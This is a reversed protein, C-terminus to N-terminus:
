SIQQLYMQYRSYKFWSMPIYLYWLWNSRRSHVSVLISPYTLHSRGGWCYEQNIYLPRFFFNDWTWKTSALLRTYQISIVVTPRLSARAPWHGGEGDSGTGVPWQVQRGYMEIRTKSLEWFQRLYQAVKMNINALIGKRLKKSSELIQSGLKFKGYKGCQLANQQLTNWDWSNAIASYIHLCLAWMGQPESALAIWQRM